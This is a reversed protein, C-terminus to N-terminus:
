VLNKKRDRAKALEQDPTRQTKKIFGNLLWEKVPVRGSDSRYFVVNVTKRTM